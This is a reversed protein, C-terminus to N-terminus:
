QWLVALCDTGTIRLYKWVMVEQPMTFALFILQLWKLYSNPFLIVPNDEFTDHNRQMDGWGWSWRLTFCIQRWCGFALQLDEMKRQWSYCCASQIIIITAMHPFNELPSNVEKVLCWDLTIHNNSYLMFMGLVVCISLLLPCVKDSLM